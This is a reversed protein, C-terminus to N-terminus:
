RTCPKFAKMIVENGIKIWTWNDEAYKDCGSVVINPRLNGFKFKDESPLKSNVDNITETNVVLYSALDSLAGQILIYLRM